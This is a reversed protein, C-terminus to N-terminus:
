NMMIKLTKKELFTILKKDYSLELVEKSIKKVEESEDDKKFSYIYCSFIDFKMFCYNKQNYELNEDTDTRFGQADLIIIADSIKMDDAIAKDRVMLAGRFIGPYVVVNNIQSPFDPRGTAVIRAGGFFPM